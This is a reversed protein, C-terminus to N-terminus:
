KQHFARLRSPRLPLAVWWNTALRYAKRLELSANQRRAYLLRSRSCVSFQVKLGRFHSNM